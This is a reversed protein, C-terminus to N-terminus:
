AALSHDERIIKLPAQTADVTLRIPPPNQAVATLASFLFLAFLCAMALHLQRKNMSDM